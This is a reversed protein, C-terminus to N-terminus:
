KAISQQLMKISDQSNQMKLKNYLHGRLIYINSSAINLKTKFEVNNISKIFITYTADNLM